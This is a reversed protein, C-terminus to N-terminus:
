RCIWLSMGQIDRLVAGSVSGVFFRSLGTRPKTRCKRGMAIAAFNNEKAHRLITQGVNNSDLVLTSIRQEPFKNETIQEVAKTLIQEPDSQDNSSRVHLVTIRNKPDSNLVFGVHDATHLSHDSGDVCLLLDKRQREPERCIWIPLDCQEDLIKSSVSDQILNELLTLGRRGMVLSDYLGKRGHSIIDKVTSIASLKVDTRINKEPYGFDVLKQNVQSLFSKGKEMSEARLAQASAYGGHSPNATVNLIDILLEDKNHFFYGLFRVGYQFTLDNSVALLFHKKIKMKEM